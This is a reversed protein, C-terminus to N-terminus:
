PVPRAPLARHRALVLTPLAGSSQDPRQDARLVRRRVPLARKGPAHHCQDGRGAHQRVRGIRGGVPDASGPHLRHRTRSARRRQVPLHFQHRRVPVPERQHGLRVGVDHDGHREVAIDALDGSRGQDLRVHEIAPGPHRAPGRSRLPHRVRTGPTSASGAGEVVVSEALGAVAPRRTRRSPPAPALPSTRYTCPRLGRCTSTSCTGAPLCPRSACSVGTM